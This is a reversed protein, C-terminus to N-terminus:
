LSNQLDKLLDDYKKAKIACDLTFKVWAPYPNLRGWQSITNANLGLREAFDKKSQFGAKFLKQKFEQESM